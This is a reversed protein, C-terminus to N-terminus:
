APSSGKGNPHRTRRPWWGARAVLGCLLAWSLGLAWGALVDTPYHVGLVVRSVGVLGTLLVGWLLLYARVVPRRVTGALLVGLTLYVAASAAAHSSPFSATSVTDLHPVVTPRPRDFVAKLGDCVAAGGAAAVLVLLATGWRRRFALYGVVGLTLLSLVPFGGLATVDLMTQTVWRPGVPVAPDDAARLGRLIHEDFAPNGAHVVVGLTIFVLVGLLTLLHHRGVWALLRRVPQEGPLTAAAPATNVTVPPAFVELANPVVEFRAPTTTTLEGDTNVKKTRRTIVEVMQGRYVRVRPSGALTGRLLAPMLPILEWWGRVELSYVDLRQDDIAADAAVTLGGGYHRGNGVAVQVTKVRHTMGDVTIDARFPRWKWVAEAAAIVYALVGFRAKRERSLGATVAVSLGISAVNFFHKGNVRGLDIARRHGDAIVRCAATLDTPLNLTRALDNATGLPLVGLPKGAERLVDALTNLTGDGGGVVVLDVGGALQRIRDVSEQGPEPTGDIVEFGLETLLAAAQTFAEGGQRARRNVMLLLRKGM